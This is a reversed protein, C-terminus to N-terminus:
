AETLGAIAERGGDALWQAVVPYLEEEEKRDHHLLIQGVTDALALFEEADDEALSEGMESFFVKLDGHGKRLTSTLPNDAGHRAEYAPFLVAEEVAMHREIGSRFEAFAARAAGAAGSQASQRAAKLSADLREHDQCFVDSLSEM